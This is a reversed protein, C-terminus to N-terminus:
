QGVWCPLCQEFFLEQTLWSLETLVSFGTFDQTLRCHETLVSSGTFDKLRRTFETLVLNGTLVSHARHFGVEKSSRSFETSVLKGTLVSHARNASDAVQKSSRTLETLM